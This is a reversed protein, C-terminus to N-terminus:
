GPLPERARSQDAGRSGRRLQGHRGHWDIVLMTADDALTPGAVRLVADALARDGGSPAAPLDFRM